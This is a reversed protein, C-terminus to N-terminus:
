KQEFFDDSVEITTKKIDTTSGSSSYIRGNYGSKEFPRYSVFCNGEDDEYEDDLENDNKYREGWNIVPEKKNFKYLCENYFVAVCKPGDAKVIFDLAEQETNLVVDAISKLYEIAEERTKFFEYLALTQDYYRGDYEEEYSFDLAYCKIEKM